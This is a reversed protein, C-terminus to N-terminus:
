ELSFTFEFDLLVMLIVERAAPPRRCTPPSSNKKNIKNAKQNIRPERNGLTASNANRFALKAVQRVRLDIDAKEPFYLRIHFSHALVYSSFVFVIYLYVYIYIYIHYM